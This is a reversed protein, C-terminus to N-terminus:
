GFPGLPDTARCQFRVVNGFLVETITTSAFPSWYDGDIPDYIKDAPMITNVGARNLEARPINWFCSGDSTLRGRLPQGTRSIPGRWCGFLRLAVVTGQEQDDGRKYLIIEQIDSGARLVRTFNRTNRKNLPM